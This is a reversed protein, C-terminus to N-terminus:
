PLYLRLLNNNRHPNKTNKGNVCVCMSQSQKEKHSSIQIYVYLFYVGQIYSSKKGGKVIQLHCPLAIFIKSKIPQLYQVNGTGIFTIFGNLLSPIHVLIGRYYFESWFYVFSRRYIKNSRWFTGLM